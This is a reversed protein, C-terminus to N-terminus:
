RGLQQDLLSMADDQMASVWTSAAIGEHCRATGFSGDSSVKRGDGPCFGGGVLGILETGEIGYDVVGTGSIPLGLPHLGSGPTGSM